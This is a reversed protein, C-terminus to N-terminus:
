HEKRVDSELINLRRGRVEHPTLEMWVYEVDPAFDIIPKEDLAAHAEADTLTRLTGLCVTSSFHRAMQWAAEFAVVQGETDSRLRSSTGTRFYIRWDHVVYSVPYIDPAGQRVGSVRGIHCGQLIEWAEDDSLHDIPFESM